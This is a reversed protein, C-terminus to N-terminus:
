EVECEVRNTGFFQAPPIHYRNKSVMGRYAVTPHSRIVDLLLEPSSHRRDYSCLALCNIESLAGTLGSEYEMWRRRDAVGGLVWESDGVARLAFFGQRM